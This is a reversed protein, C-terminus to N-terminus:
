SATGGMIVKLGEHSPLGEIIRTAVAQPNDICIISWEKTLVEANTFTVLKLTVSGTNLRTDFNGQSVTVGTVRDFKQETMEREFPFGFREESIRGESKNVVTVTRALYLNGIIGSVNALIVLVGGAFGIVLFILGIEDDGKMNSPMNWYEMYATLCKATPATDDQPQPVYLGNAATDFYFHGAGSLRCQGSSKEVQGYDAQGRSISVCYKGIVSKGIANFGVVMAIGVLLWFSSTAYRGVLARPSAKLTIMTEM